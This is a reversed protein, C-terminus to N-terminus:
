FIEFLFWVVAIIVGFLFPKKTNNVYAEQLLFKYFSFLFVTPLFGLSFHGFQNALWAYTLSVGRYSDKGIKVL